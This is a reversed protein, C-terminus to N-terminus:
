LDEKYLLWKEDTKPLKRQPLLKPKKRKGCIKIAARLVLIPRFSDPLEINGKAHQKLLDDYLKYGTIGDKFYGKRLWDELIGLVLSQDETAVNYIPTEPLTYSEIYTSKKNFAGTGKYNIIAKKTITKKASIKIDAEEFSNKFFMDKPMKKLVRAYFNTYNIDYASNTTLDENAQVEQLDKGILFAFEEQTYGKAERHKRVMTNLEYSLTPINISM